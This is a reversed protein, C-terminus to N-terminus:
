EFVCLRENFFFKYLVKKLFFIYIFMDILYKRKLFNLNYIVLFM